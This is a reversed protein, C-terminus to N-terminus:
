CSDYVYAPHGPMVLDRDRLITAAPQQPDACVRDFPRPLADTYEIDLVSSGYVETYHACEDFVACEEAIAFDFGADDELEAAFEAANKQAAALGAEHAISVLEAALALNDAPSLAGASRTFTDLNDFEVADFGDDACGRIWEGVIDVIVARKRPTSTDLLVEDPWEPDTVLAGDAHLLVDVPWLGREGPQTQFGNVYCISYAGAAPEDTRDRAVIGVGDPPEYGGGLQYDFGATTPPLDPDGAPTAGSCGSM